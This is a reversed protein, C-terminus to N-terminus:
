TANAKKAEEEAAAAAEAEIETFYENTTECKIGQNYEPCEQLQESGSIARQCQTCDYKTCKLVCM